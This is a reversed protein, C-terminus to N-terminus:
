NFMELFKVEKAAVTKILCKLFSSKRYEQIKLANACKLRACKQKNKGKSLKIIFNIKTEWFM